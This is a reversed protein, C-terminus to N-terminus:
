EPAAVVIQQVATFMVRGSGGGVGGRVEKWGVPNTTYGLVSSKETGYFYAAALPYSGPRDPARLQFTVRASAWQKAASDSAIGTVNVYSLNRGQSEPRKSLWEVQAVGDPGEVVPPAEIVFGASAAPRAYWRHNGDLLAVGVAPGAGGTVRVSVEFIEGPAVSPPATMVVSSAVDLARIQEALTQRDVDSLSAYGKEGALIVAIHKREAVEKDAREGVGAMAEASRSSHCSACFPAIDTQYNPTGGPYAGAVTSGLLVAAAAVLGQHIKM